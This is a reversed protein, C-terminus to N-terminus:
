PSVDASTPETHVIVDALSPCRERVAEEIEGAQQHASPLPQEGPLGVTVLAIRGREGDRFRVSVPAQEGLHRRVAEEIAAREVATDDRGPRRAWDTGALPEIHTHVSRLEPLSARIAAELREVADHAATLSLEQPLKVHLSLEYGDDVALGRVNHVERVEPVTLAAATARERLDGETEAPEVHVVVDAHELAREVREEVADAVAHAQLM